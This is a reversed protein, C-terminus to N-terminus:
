RWSALTTSTDYAAAGGGRLQTGVILTGAATRQGTLDTGDLTALWIVHWLGELKDEVDPVLEARDVYVTATHARYAERETVFRRLTDADQVDEPEYDVIRALLPATGLVDIGYTRAQPFRARVQDYNAYRGNVYAAYRAAGAPLAAVDTADYMTVIQQSTTEDATTM